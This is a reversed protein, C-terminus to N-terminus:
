ALVVVAVLELLCIMLLIVIILVVLKKGKESLAFGGDPTLQGFISSLRVGVSKTAVSDANAAEVDKQNMEDAAQEKDKEKVTTRKGDSKVSDDDKSGTRFIKVFVSSLKRKPKEENVPELETKMVVIDEEEPKVVTMAAVSAERKITHKLFTVGSKRAQTLLEEFDVCGDGDIDASKFLKNMETLHPLVKGEMSAAVKMDEKSLLGDKDHDYLTFLRFLEPSATINKRQEIMMNLYEDWSIEGDGDTDYRRLIKRFGRESMAHGSRRRTIERIEDFSISGSNDADFAYFAKKLGIVDAKTFLAGKSRSAM